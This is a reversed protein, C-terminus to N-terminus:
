RRVHLWIANGNLDGFIFFWLFKLLLVKIIRFNNIKRGSDLIM